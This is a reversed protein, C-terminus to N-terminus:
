TVDLAYSWATAMAAPLNQNAEEEFLGRQLTASLDEAARAVPTAPGGPALLLLLVLLCLPFPTLPFPPFPFLSFPRNPSFIRRILSEYM